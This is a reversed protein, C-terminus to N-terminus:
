LLSDFYVPGDRVMTGLMSKPLTCPSGPPARLLFPTHRAGRDGSGQAAAM